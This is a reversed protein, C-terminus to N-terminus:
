SSCFFPLSASTKTGSFWQASRASLIAYFISFLWRKLLASPMSADLRVMLCTIAAWAFYYFISEELNGYFMSHTITFGLTTVLVLAIIGLVFMFTTIGFMFMRPLSSTFGPNRRFTM